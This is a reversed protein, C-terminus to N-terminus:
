DNSDDKRIASAVALRRRREYDRAKDIWVNKSENAEWRAGDKEYMALYFAEAQKMPDCYDRSM